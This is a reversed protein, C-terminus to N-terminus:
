ADYFGNGASEGTASKLPPVDVLVEGNRLAFPADLDAVHELIFDLDAAQGSSRLYNASKNAIWAHAPKNSWRRVIEVTNADAAVYGLDLLCEAIWACCMQDEERFEEHSGAGILAVASFRGALHRAAPIYNRLCALFAADCQAAEHCLRTGSSSLLILPRELDRRGALQAPSNNLHFGPPKIGRQEGALLPDKLHGALQVAANMTPVPFCRRGSAAATIATTTARVVDVAVVAYGRRYRAASEPLSDIVVTNRM